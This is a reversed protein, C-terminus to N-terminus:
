DVLILEWMYAYLLFMAQDMSLVGFVCRVDIEALENRVHRDFNALGPEFVSVSRPCMDGNGDYFWLMLQLLQLM